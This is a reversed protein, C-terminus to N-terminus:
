FCIELATKEVAQRLKEIANVLEKPIKAIRHYQYLGLWEGKGIVTDQEKWRVVNDLYDKYLKLVEKGIASCDSWAFMNKDFPNLKNEVIIGGNVVRV